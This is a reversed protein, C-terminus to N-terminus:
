FNETNEMKGMTGTHSKLEQIEKLVEKSCGKYKEEISSQTKSLLNQLEEERYQLDSIKRDREKIQDPCQSHEDRIQVCEEAKEQFLKIYREKVKGLEEDRNCDLEEYRGIILYM